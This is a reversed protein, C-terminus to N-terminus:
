RAREASGPVLDFWSCCVDHSCRFEVAAAATRGAEQQGVQVGGDRSRVEASVEFAARGRGVCCAGEGVQFDERSRVPRAPADGKGPEFAVRVGLPDPFPEIPRPDSTFSSSRADLCIPRFLHPMRCVFEPIRASGTPIRVARAGNERFLM